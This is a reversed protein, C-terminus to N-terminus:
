RAAVRQREFVMSQVAVGAHWSPKVLLSPVPLAIKLNEPTWLRQLSRMGHNVATDSPPSAM